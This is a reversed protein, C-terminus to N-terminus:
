RAGASAPLVARLWVRISELETDTYRAVVGSHKWNGGESLRVEGEGFTRVVPLQASLDVIRITASPSSQRLAPFPDQGSVEATVLGPVSINDLSESTFNASLIPMGVNGGAGNVAHCTACSPLRESDFFLDRGDVQEKTLKIPAPVKAIDASGTAPTPLSLIYSVVADLAARNLKSSFSPMGLRPRGKSITERLEARKFNRGALAPARSAAGASGHCYPVSCQEAFIIAGDVAAGSAAKIQAALALTLLIM